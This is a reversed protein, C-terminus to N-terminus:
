WNENEGGLIECAETRKSSHLQGLVAAEFHLGERSESAGVGQPPLGVASGGTLGFHHRYAVLSPAGKPTEAPHLSFFKISPHQISSYRSFQYIGRLLSSIFLHVMSLDM